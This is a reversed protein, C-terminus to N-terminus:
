LKEKRSEARKQAALQQVRLVSVLFSALFIKENDPKGLLSHIKDFLKEGKSKEAKIRPDIWAEIPLLFEELTAAREFGYRDGENADSCAM